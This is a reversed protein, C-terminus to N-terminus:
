KKSESSGESEKPAEVEENEKFIMQNVSVRLNAREKEGLGHIVVRYQTFEPISWDPENLEEIVTFAFNLPSELQYVSWISLKEKVRIKMWAECFARVQIEISYTLFSELADKKIYFRKEQEHTTNSQDHSKKRGSNEEYSKCFELLLELDFDEQYAIINKYKYHDQLHKSNWHSRFIVVFPNHKTDKELELIIDGLEGEDKMAPCQYCLIGPMIKKLLSDRSALSRYLRISYPYSDLPHTAQELISLDSDIIMLRTRKSLSKSTHKDLFKELKNKRAQSREKLSNELWFKKKKDGETRAAVVDEPMNIVYALDSVHNLEYYYDEDIRKGIRFNHIPFENGLCHDLEFIKKEDPLFDHEVHLYKESLYGIRMLSTVTMSLPTKIVEARAFDGEPFAGGKMLFVAQNTIDEHEASKIHTFPIGICFSERLLNKPALSDWLGILTPVTDFLRPLSRAVTLMKLPRSSYDLFCINPMEKVIDITLRQFTEEDEEWLNIFEFEESFNETFSKKLSSFYSLDRGVFVVKIM